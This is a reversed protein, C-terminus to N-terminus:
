EEGEAIQVPIANRTPMETYGLEVTWLFSAPNDRKALGERGPRIGTVGLEIVLRMGNEAIPNCRTM